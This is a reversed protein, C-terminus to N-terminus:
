YQIYVVKEWGVNLMDIRDGNVIAIDMAHKALAVPAQFVLDISLCDQIIQTLQVTVM